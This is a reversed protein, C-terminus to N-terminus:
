LAKHKCLADIFKEPINEPSGVFYIYNSQDSILVSKTNDTLLNTVEIGCQIADGVKDREVFAWFDQKLDGVAGLLIRDKKPGTFSIGNQMTQLDFWYSSPIAGVSHFAHIYINSETKRALHSSTSIVALLVVLGVIVWTKKDTPFKM